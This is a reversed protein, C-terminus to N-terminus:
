IQRLLQQLGPEEVMDAAATPSVWKRNREEMEPFVDVLKDVETAYVQVEVKVEAGGDLRKDYDYTGLIEPDITAKKVGAEEWAEQLASGPADLGDIPWGKPLVWRRSDRSTILLIKRTAGDGRFCLAAVQLRKPRRLLPVVVSSLANKLADTM